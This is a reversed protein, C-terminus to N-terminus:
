GSAQVNTKRRTIVLFLKPWPPSSATLKRTLTLFLVVTLARVLALESENGLLQMFKPFQRSPVYVYHNSSISDTDICLLTVMSIRPKFFSGIWFVKVLPPQSFFIHTGSETVVLIMKFSVEHHLVLSVQPSPLLSWSLQHSFVLLGEGRHNSYPM